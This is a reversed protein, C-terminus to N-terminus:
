TGTHNGYPAGGINIYIGMGRAITPTVFQWAITKRQKDYMKKTSFALFLYSPLRNLM